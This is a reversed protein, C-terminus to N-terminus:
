RKMRVWNDPLNLDRRKNKFWPDAVIIKSNKNKSLVAAILPFTSNGIIFNENKIMKGFSKITNESRVLEFEYVLITSSINHVPM